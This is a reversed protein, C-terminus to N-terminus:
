LHATQLLVATQFSFSFIIMEAIQAKKLAHLTFYFFVSNLFVFSHPSNKKVNEVFLFYSLSDPM